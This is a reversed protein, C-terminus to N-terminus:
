SDEYAVSAAILLGIRLTTQDGDENVLYKTEMQKFPGDIQEYALAAQADLRITLTIEKIAVQRRLTLTDSEGDVEFGVASFFLSEDSVIARVASPGADFGREM